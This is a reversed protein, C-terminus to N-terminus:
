NRRRENNSAEQFSSSGHGRRAQRDNEDFAQFVDHHCEECVIIEGPDDLASAGCGCRCLENGGLMSSTINVASGYSESLDDSSLAEYCTPCFWVRNIEWIERETAEMCRLHKSTDLCEECIAATDANRQSGDFNREYVRESCGTCYM